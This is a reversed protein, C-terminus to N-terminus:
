ESEQSRVGQNELHERLLSGVSESHPTSHRRDLAAAQDIVLDIAAALSALIAEATAAAPLTLAFSEKLAKPLSDALTDVSEREHINMCALQLAFRRLEDLQLTAKWIEGRRLARAAATTRHITRNLTQVYGEATATRAAGDDLTALKRAM